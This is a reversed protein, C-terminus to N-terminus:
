RPSHARRWGAVAVIMTALAVGLWGVVIVFQWQGSWQSLSQEYGPLLTDFLAVANALVISGAGLSLLARKRMANSGLEGLGIAVVILLPVLGVFLYRGQAQFDNLYSNRISLAPMIVIPAVTLAFLAAHRLDSRDCTTWWTTFAFAAGIGGMLLVATVLAYLWGSIPLSMWGFTGVFSRATIDIWNGTTLMEWVSSNVSRGAGSGLDLTDALERARRTALLDTGYLSIASVFWWASAVLASGLMTFLRASVMRASGRLSVAIVFLTLVLLLYGTQKGQLVLGCFVGVTITSSVTWATRDARWWSWMLGTGAMVTFADTNVYASVFTLQPWFAVMVATAFAVGNLRTVERALAFALLVTFALWAAGAARAQRYDMWESDTPLAILLAAAAYPLQPAGAYSYNGIRSGAPDVVEIGMGPDVGFEPIRGNDATFKAVSFHNPEDPAQGAPITFSWVISNLAALVATM